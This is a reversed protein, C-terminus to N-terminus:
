TCMIRGVGDWVLRCKHCSCPSVDYIRAITYNRISLHIVTRMQPLCHAFAPCFVCCSSFLDYYCTLPLIAGRWFNPCITYFSTLLGVVSPSLLVSFRSIVRFCLGFPTRCLRGALLACACSCYLSTRQQSWKEYATAVVKRGPSKWHQISNNPRKLQKHKALHQM